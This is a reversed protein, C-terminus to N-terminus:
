EEKGGRVKERAGDGKGEKRVPTKRNERRM